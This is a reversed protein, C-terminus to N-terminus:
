HKKDDYMEFEMIDITNNCNENKRTSCGMLGPAKTSIYFRLVIRFATDYM